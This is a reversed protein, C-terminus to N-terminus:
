SLEVKLTIAFQKDSQDISLSHKNPYILQLRRKVNELGLGSPAEEQLNSFIQNSVNLTLVSERLGIFIHVKSKEHTSIGHKFANEVFTILVLPAIEAQSHINNCDFEICAKQSLRIKQLEVYSQIFAVEKELPVKEFNSQELQYRMLESLKLVATSTQDDKKLALSYINNLTNFLFHPNVQMKLLNLESKTREAEQEKQNVAISTLFHSMRLGSSMLWILLFLFISSEFFHDPGSAFGWSKEREFHEIREMREWEAFTLPTNSKINHFKEIAEIDKSAEDFQHHEWKNPLASFVLLCVAIITFYSWFKRKLFYRPILFNYNAYFLLILLADCLLVPWRFFSWDFMSELHEGQHHRHEFVIPLSFFILWAILHIVIRLWKTQM